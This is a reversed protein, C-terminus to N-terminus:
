DNPAVRSSLPDRLHLTRADEMRFEIERAM